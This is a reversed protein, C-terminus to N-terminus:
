FTKKETAIFAENNKELDFLESLLPTSIVSDRKSVINETSVFESTNKKRLFLYAVLFCSFIILSYVVLRKKQTNM